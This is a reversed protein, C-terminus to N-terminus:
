QIDIRRTKEINKDKPIHINLVGNELKAFINDPSANPLYVSRQMSSLRREKYIYNKNQNDKMEQKNVAIHLRGDTMKIDIEDKKVGPLEAEVLYEQEKEEVDLRFAINKAMSWPESFFNDLTNYFDDFGFPRLGFFNRDYPVLGSM